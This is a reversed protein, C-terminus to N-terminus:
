SATGKWAVHKGKSSKHRSLSSLMVEVFDVLSLGQGLEQERKKFNYAMRQFSKGQLMVLVDMKITLARERERVRRSENLM